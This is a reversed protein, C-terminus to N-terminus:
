THAFEAVGSGEIPRRLFAQERNSSADSRSKAIISETNTLLLNKFFTSSEFVRLVGGGNVPGGERTGEPGVESEVGWVKSEGVGRM